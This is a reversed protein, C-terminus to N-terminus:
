VKSSPKILVIDGHDSLLWLATALCYGLVLTCRLHVMGAYFPKILDGILGVVVGWYLVEMYLFLEAM